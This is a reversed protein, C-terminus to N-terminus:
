QSPTTQMTEIVRKRIELRREQRSNVPKAQINAEIKKDEQAKTQKAQEQMVEWKTVQEKAAAINPAQPAISIYSNMADIALPYNEIKGELLAINFYLSASYPAFKLAKNFEKIAVPYNSTKIFMQGRVIHKNAEDPISPLNSMKHIVRLMSENISNVEEDSSAFRFMQTYLKLCENYEGKKEYIEASMKLENIFPKLYKLLELRDSSLFIDEEFADDKLLNMYINKAKKIDGNKAYMISEFLQGHANKEMKSLVNSAEVFSNKDIDIAALPLLGLSKDLANAQKADNLAEAHKDLKREILSRVELKSAAKKEYFQNRTVKKEIEEEQRKVLITVSTGKKGLIKNAVDQLKFGNVSQGDIELIEDGMKLGAEIAPANPTLNIIYFKSDILEYTLGAGIHTELDIAKSIASQAEDFNSIGYYIRSLAELVKTNKSDIKNARQLIHIAEDVNEIKLYLEALSLSANTFSPKISIAKQYMDIATSYEYKKEYSSGMNFYANMDNQNLEIARKSATIADEYQENGNYCYALANFYNYNNPNVNNILKNFLNIGLNYQADKCYSYGLWLMTSHDNPALALVTNFELSAEHYREQNYLSVGRAFKKQKPSVEPQTACGSFLTALLVVMFLSIKIMEQEKKVKKKMM